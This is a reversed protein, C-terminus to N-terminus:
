AAGGVNVTLKISGDALARESVSHGNKRAALTAKEVAYAQLFSDLRAQDGWRGEYNDFEVKGTNVDCVVPYRWDALKVIWGTKSGSFLKAEGFKPEALNLRSCASRIAVPDRVQTQIAVIHSLLFERVSLFVPM